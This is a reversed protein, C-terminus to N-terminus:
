FSVGVSGEPYFTTCDEYTSEDCDLYKEWVGGFGLYTRGGGKYIGARAGISNLDDIDNGIFTRRYFAGVYPIMLRQAKALVLRVEPTLKSVSPESGFWAEYWVGVEMGKRVFRGLGAGVMLYDQGFSRGWGATFSGHMAGKDFPGGSRRPATEAQAQAPPPPQTTPQVSTPTSAPTSSAPPATAPAAAPPASAPPPTTSVTDPPATTTGTTGTQAWCTASIALLAAFALLLWVSPRSKM